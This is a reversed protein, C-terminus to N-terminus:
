AIGKGMERRRQAVLVTRPRDSHPAGGDYDGFACQVTGGAAEIMARLDAGSFLRVREEFRRGDALAFAKSVFRRDPSLHREIRVPAGALSTQEEPVLGAIVADPNLFDLVFWGGPVLAQLMEALAQRHETDDHFYGFSTFLNLVLDCSGPRIPLRRMDARVLPAATVQRARALLVASLDLGVPHLGVAELARAHRGPGCGVDLVRWAPQWPIHRQILALLRAADDADRHAYLALYEEGFWEAFWEAM